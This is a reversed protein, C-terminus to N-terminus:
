NKRVVVIQALSPEYRGSDQGQNRAGHALRLPCCPHLHRWLSWLHVLPRFPRGRCNHTGFTLGLRRCESITFRMLQQWRESGIANATDKVLGQATGGVQFNQVGGIGAKQYAELDATIGEESIMGDMWQWIMIPKAEAPPNMFVDEITQGAVSQIGLVLSALISLRVKM